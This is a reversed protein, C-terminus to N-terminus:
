GKMSPRGWPILTCVAKKESCEAAEGIREALVLPHIVSYIHKGVVDRDKRSNEHVDGTVDWWRSPCVDCWEELTLDRLTKGTGKWVQTVNGILYPKAEVDLKSDKVNEKAMVLYLYEKVEKVTAKKSPFYTIDKEHINAQSLKNWPQARNDIVSQITIGRGDERHDQCPRTTFEEYHWIKGTRKDTLSCAAWVREVKCARDTKAGM